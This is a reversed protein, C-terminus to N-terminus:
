FAWDFSQAKQMEPGLNLVSIRSLSRRDCIHEVGGGGRGGM